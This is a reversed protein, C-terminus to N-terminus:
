PTKRLGVGEASNAAVHACCGSLALGARQPFSGQSLRPRWGSGVATVLATDWVRRDGHARAAM